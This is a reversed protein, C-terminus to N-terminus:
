KKYNKVSMLADMVLGFFNEAESLDLFEFKQDNHIVVYTSASENANKIEALLLKCNVLYKYERITDM